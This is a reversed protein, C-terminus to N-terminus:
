FRMTLIAVDDRSGSALVADHLAQAPREAAAIAPSSLAAHVLAEGRIINRTAETLGDTYMVLLSGHPVVVARSYSLVPSRVGLMPATPSLEEVTADRRRLFQPPHGASAYSLVGTRPEFIAAFASAFCAPEIMRLTLDAADLMSNPDTRIFAASQMAQRLKGMAVAATLGHGAVDGISIGVRGDPLVFADYWDGGVEAERSGPVYIADFQLGPPAPLSQPLLANQLTMAIRGEREFSEASALAMGARRGVEQALALDTEDYKRGSHQTTCFTLAGQRHGELGVPVTILSLINSEIILRSHEADTAVSEIWDASVDRQLLSQGLLARIAPANPQTPPPATMFREVASAASGNEDSGAFAVAVRRMSIGDADLLNIACLDCFARVSAEALQQLVLGVSRAGGLVTGTEALYALGRETRKQLDINTSTGYWRVINGSTDRLAQARALFWRFFGDSDRVLIEAEYPEGTAMAHTWKELVDARNQPHTASLWGEGLSTDRSIGTFDYWRNNFWELAGDAGAIWAMDPISEAFARFAAANERAAAEARKQDEIDTTIGIWKVIEGREDRYPVARGLMWRYIGDFRRIRYETEYKRGLARAANWALRSRERDDPHVANEWRFGTAEDLSLGTFEIWRRSCFDSFGDPRATWVIEPMADAMSGFTVPDSAIM